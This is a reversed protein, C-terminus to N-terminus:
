RGSEDLAEFLEALRPPLEATLIYSGIAMGLAPKTMKKGGANLSRLQKSFKEGDRLCNVKLQEIKELTWNVPTSNGCENLYECWCKHLTESNFADEFEKTGVIFKRETPIGLKDILEQTDPSADNDMLIYINDPSHLELIAKSFGPINTIGRSNIVKILDSTIPRDHRKLYHSPLFEEETEGEVIVLNRSFFLYTNEIGLTKLIKSSSSAQDSLYRVRSENINNEILRIQKAGLANIIFPSHTTLVVQDGNKSFSRLTELLEIQAKVHLHTDPEDLLYFTNDDHKLLNEEKKFELLAMTIRRKTGDGKKELNIEKGNELFNVKADINLDRSQYIPEIKIDTLDKLFLQMKSLIGKEGIKKSIEESFSVIRSKVFDEITTCSDIKEKWISTQKEKLFVEKFFASVNEFQRGSLQINNFQPFQVGEIVLEKPEEPAIKEIIGAKLNEVRSNTRVQIGLIKATNKVMEINEDKALDFSEHCLIERIKAVYDASPKAVFSEERVIGDSKCYTREFIFDEMEIKLVMKDLGHTFDDPEILKNQTVVKLCEILSTKGSDNEGVIVTLDNEFSIDFDKLCRFGNVKLRKIKM